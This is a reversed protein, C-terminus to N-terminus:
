VCSEDINLKKAGAVIMNVSCYFQGKRDLQQLSGYWDDIENEPYLGAKKAEDCMWKIPTKDLQFLTLPFVKLAVDQLCAEKLLM